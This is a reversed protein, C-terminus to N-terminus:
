TGPEFARMPPEVDMRRILGDQITFVHVLRDSSLLTGDLGRVLQRVEAAVRGDARTSVARPEVTPDLQSFQERWHRRVEDRGHVFGGTSVDPWDVDVTMLAVGNDVDRQNFAAYAQRILNEHPSPM